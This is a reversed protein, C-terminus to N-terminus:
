TAVLGSNGEVVGNRLREDHGSETRADMSTEVLQLPM